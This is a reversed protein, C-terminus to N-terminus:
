FIPYNDESGDGHKSIVARWSGGLMATFAIWIFMATPSRVADHQFWSLFSAIGFIALLTTAAFYAVLVTKRFFMGLAFVIALFGWIQLPMFNLVALSAVKSFFDDNIFFTLLVGFILLFTARMKTLADPM